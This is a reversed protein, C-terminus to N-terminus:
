IRHKDLEDIKTQTTQTTEQREKQLNQKKSQKHRSKEHLADDLSSRASWDALGGALGGPEVTDSSHALASTDSGLHHRRRLLLLRLLERWSVVPSSVRSVVLLRRCGSCALRRRCPFLLALRVPDTCHSWTVAVATATVCCRRICVTRRADVASQDLRDAQRDPGETRERHAGRLRAATTKTELQLSRRRQQRVRHGLLDSQRRRRAHAGGTVVDVRCTLPSHSAIPFPM